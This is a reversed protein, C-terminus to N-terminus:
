TRWKQMGQVGLRSIEMFTHFSVRHRQCIWRGISSCGCGGLSDACAQEEFLMYNGLIETAATGNMIGERRPYRTLLQLARHRTSPERCRMITMLIAESIAVSLSFAPTQNANGAHDTNERAALVQESLTVIMAYQDIFEDHGLEGKTPDNFLTQAYLRRINLVTILNGEIIESKTALYSQFRTDWSTFDGFCTERQTISAGNVHQNLRILRNILKELEVYVQLCTHFPQSTYVSQSNSIQEAVQMGVGVRIHTGQTDLQTFMVLLMNIAVDADDQQVGSSEGLGWEHILKLGYKIHMLAQKQCNQLTCLCTFLLCSTLVVVKDQKDLAKGSSLMRTLSQISENFQRLAFQVRGITEAQSNYLLLNSDSMYQRHIAGLATTAHWLPPYLHAAQLTYRTWFGFDCGGALGPATVTCFFLFNRIEQSNSNSNSNSSGGPLLSLDSLGRITLPPHSQEVLASSSADQNALKRRVRGGQKKVTSINEM